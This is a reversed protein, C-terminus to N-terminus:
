AELQARLAAARKASQFSFRQWTGERKRHSSFWVAGDIPEIFWGYTQGDAFWADGCTPRKNAGSTGFTHIKTVTM